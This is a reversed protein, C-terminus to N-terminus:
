NTINQIIEKAWAIAKEKPEDIGYKKPSQFRIEDLINSDKLAEKFNKM